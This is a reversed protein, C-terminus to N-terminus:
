PNKSTNWEGDKETLLEKTDVFDLAGGRTLLHEIMERPTKNLFGLMEHEVKSLNEKDVAELILDKAGLKVGELTRYQNILEKHEM